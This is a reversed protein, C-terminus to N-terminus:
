NLESLQGGSVRRRYAALFAEAREARALVEAISPADGPPRDQALLAFTAGDPTAAMAAGFRRDLYKLGRRDGALALAVAVNTVARAAEESLVAGPEPSPPLLQAFAAAAAAWDGRRSLIEARLQIGTPSSDGTLLRLAEGDRELGALAKAQM